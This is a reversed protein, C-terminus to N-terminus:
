QSLREYYDKLIERYELPLERAFNENLAARDRRGIVNWELRGGKPKGGSVAGPMFMMMDDSLSETPDTPGGDEPPGPVPPVVFALAYDLIFHRLVEGAEHQSTIAEAQASSKLNSAAQSIYKKAEVLNTTSKAASAFLAAQVDTEAERSPKSQSRKILPEVRGALEVQKTALDAAQEPTATQSKRYLVKQESALALVDLLLQVESPVDVGPSPPQLIIAVQEMLKLLEESDTSLVAEAQRMKAVAEARDGADLKSVAESMHQATRSFREQGTAKLLLSALTEARAQLTRQQDVLEVVPADDATALLQERLQSQAAHIVLGESVIEHFFETMEFVYNYQPTVRQLENLLDQLSEAVFSGADEAEVLDNEALAIAAADMDEKAFVFVTGSEIQHALPDLVVLIADVAHILNKQVIALQPLDAEQAKEAASVLDLQEAQIDAVFPGPILASRRAELTIALSSLGLGQKELLSVAVELTDLATEQHDIAEDPQKGQLFPVASTMSRTTKELYSLLAMVDEGSTAMKKNREVIATRFLEVDDGLKQQLQALYASDSEDDAADETKDLLVLQREVFQSIDTVRNGSLTVLGAVREREILIELRARVMESLAEFSEEAQQQANNAKDQDGSNILAVAKEMAGEAATLLDDVPPPSPLEKDFLRPRRAPITPMLLLHLKRHLEAQAQAIESRGQKFQEPTLKANLDRLMKQQNAQAAFLEGARVLAEHEAGLRLRFEAKLLARIVDAQLATADNSEAKGILVVAESMKTEVGDSRLEKVLRSLSFAVLADHITSEKDRPTAGFLRTLWQALKDQETALAKTETGATEASMITQLRLAAQTEAVVHLERAMVETAERFGVRLVQLGLERAASDVMQVAPGPDVAGSSAGNRSNGALKRLLSAAQGIHDDAITQLDSHLLALAGTEAEDTINNAALDDMLGGIRGKLANLRERMLDQRVAELQCTQIFVDDSPDFDRVKVHAARQERYIARLQLLLRRRQKAIQALYDEKSLFSVRRSQSRAVHPGEAGPYRDTVEVVFSVTDGIALEPLASRYDWDIAQKSGDGAASVSFPVKVEETKNVLYAVASEGIGHDDRGRFALDLKRGLTAYLNSQPSTIEVRPAQDPAVQLYHSPSTFAFSHEKEVWSFNYAQSQTADQQMSVTLGDQSIDLSKTEGGASKYEAKSVARDLTLQWKIHTGEPVTVTLADVTETARETYSPYELSVEAREVRPSSIVEVTHWPSWADGAIIRYEFGRYAAKITYECAGDIIELKHIRPKGTGTRLALRAHSPIVDSVRAEIQATSGEQVTMDGSVFDLQTRTPYDVSKWPPFIRAIGAALFEGNVIAFVGIVVALVIAITLPRRLGHYGVVDEPRLTAVSAEARRSTTDRMSKSVSTAPETGRLQIATVLLSELGGMHEEIQLATHTANFGRAHRLGCRWAMYISVVLLTALIVVRGPAPMHTMWDVAMGALFLLVLWRCFALLGATVHLKQGRRWVDRVRSDLNGQQRNETM